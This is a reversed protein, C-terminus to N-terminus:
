VNNNNLPFTVHKLFVKQIKKITTFNLKNLVKKDDDDDDDNNSDILSSCLKDKVHSYM